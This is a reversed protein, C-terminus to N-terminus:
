LYESISGLVIDSVDLIRIKKSSINRNITNTVVLEELVSDEINKQANGSLVAHTVYAAVSKAGRELLLRAASCITGGGDIIDDILICRKGRVDGSLDLAQSVGPASRFKHVIAVNSNVARAREMGGADPAVVLYDDSYNREIDALIVRAPSINVLPVDYFGQIQKSHLDVTWLMDVDLSRALVKAGLPSGGVTLRDQRSYPLYPAVLCVKGLTMRRVADITLLLSFVDVCVDYFVVADGHLGGDVVVIAEGDGFRAIRAYACGQLDAFRCGDM